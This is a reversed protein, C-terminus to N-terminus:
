VEYKFIKGYFKDVENGEYTAKNKDFIEKGWAKLLDNDSVGLDHLLGYLKIETTSIRYVFIAKEPYFIIKGGVGTGPLVNVHAEAEGSEKIRTFIGPKLRQQHATIYESGNLIVTNRETVFPIHAITTKKEDVVNGSRKDILQFVGKIPLTLDRRELIAHKQEKLSFPHEPEMLKVDTVKLKYDPTEIKNLAKDFSQVAYEKLWASTKEPDFFGRTDSPLPLDYLDKVQAKM